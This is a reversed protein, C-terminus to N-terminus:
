PEIREKEFGTLKRERWLAKYKRRREASEPHAPRGDIYPASRGYWNVGAEGIHLVEFPLKVKREPPWRQQFFSDSAGCSRWNTDHWHGKPLVPDDAHFLQTYGAWEGVNPHLPLRDWTQEDPVEPLPPNTLLMRRNGGYLRGPELRVGAAEMREGADRPWCVDADLMLMWSHRGIVDLAMELARWKAFEAGKYYFERTLHVQCGYQEAVVRTLTDEPTTVIWHEAFHHRNWPITLAALDGYDVCVSVVRISAQKLNM